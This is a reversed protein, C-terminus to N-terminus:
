PAEVIADPPPQVPTRTRRLQLLVVGSLVLVGGLLQIPGLREGLFVAALAVTVPPEVTSLISATSPGVRAVGAFFTSVPLVTCVVAIATLSAWGSPGVDYSVSGSALGYLNFTTAAGTTVLASLMLPHIDHVVADSLLIYATYAAAACLGIVLGLLDLSQWGGSLVLLVGLSAVALAVIRGATLRERGIAYAALMVMAPYTYLLLATLSADLRTLTLFFLASQTSYGALGLGLGTLAQGRSPRSPRAWLLVMGWFLAAALAFRVSLLTVVNLGASYAFKGFIAMSGFAAASVLCLLTGQQQRTM